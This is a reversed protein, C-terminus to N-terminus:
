AGLDRADIKRMIRILETPKTAEPGRLYKPFLVRGDFESRFERGNIVGLQDGKSVKKFNYWGEVLQVEGEPWPYIKAWTYLEPIGESEPVATGALIGAVVGIAQIAAKFGAAVHYAGFGNQGLEITIGTGGKSLTYEDTCRGEASFPDGWHTIIPLRAESARAFRYTHETYPFIFFATECPETTQHFDIFFASQALVTELSRARREELLTASSRAFSRNLDCEVFRRNARAAQPNGLVFGMPFNLLAPSAALFGLLDNLVALGAVENGHTLGMLTLGLSKDRPALGGDRPALRFAHSELQTVRFLGPATNQFFDDFRQLETDLNRNTM